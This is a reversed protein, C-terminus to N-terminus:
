MADILDRVVHSPSTHQERARNEVKARRAADLRITFPEAADAGVTLPRGMRTTGPQGALVGGAEAREFMEDLEAGSIVKGGLAVVADTM